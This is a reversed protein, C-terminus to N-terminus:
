KLIQLIQVINRNEEKEDQQIDALSAELKSIRQRDEDISSNLTATAVNLNQQASALATYYSSLSAALIGGSTVVTGLGISIAGKKLFDKM